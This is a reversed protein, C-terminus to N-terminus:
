ARTAKEIERRIRNAGWRKDVEINMGEAQRQLTELEGNVPERTERPAKDPEPEEATAESVDLKPEDQYAKAQAENFEATISMGPEVTRPGKLTHLLVPGGLNKITLLM